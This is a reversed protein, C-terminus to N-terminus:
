EYLLARVYSTVYGTTMIGQQFEARRRTKKMFLFCVKFILTMITTQNGQFHCIKLIQTSM